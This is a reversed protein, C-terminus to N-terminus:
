FSSPAHTECRADEPLQQFRDPSTPKVREHRTV